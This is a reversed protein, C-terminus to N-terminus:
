RKLIKALLQTLFSRTEDFLSGALIEIETETKKRLNRKLELLRQTSIFYCLKLLLDDKFIQLVKNEKLFYDQKKSVHELWNKIISTAINKREAYSPYQSLAQFDTKQKQSKVSKLFSDLEEGNM